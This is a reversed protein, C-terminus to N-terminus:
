AQNIVQTAKILENEEGKEILHKIFNFYNASLLQSAAKSLERSLHSNGLITTSNYTITENNKTLSCNGGQEAALDIVVSGSPMNQVANEDILVPAKKGPINATCIVINTSQLQENIRDQQRQKYDEAQEVAYGGSNKAETNGEIEIFNAGLSRVEEGAAKRVDFAHVIAGLRKATAIAQLGAVGAGLVLVKAPQLTSTATTIMPFVKAYLETAKLVAKYGSLADLSSRVDMAQALTTRPLQDLSYVKAQLKKFKELRESFYLTNYIGIFTTHPTVNDKEEIVDNISLIFNAKQLIHAKTEITAGASIYEADTINARLGYDKEVQIVVEYKEILKKVEQPLFALRTEQSSEKLLGFHHKM